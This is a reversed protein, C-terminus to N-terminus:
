RRGKGHRRPRDVQNSEGVSSVVVDSGSLSATTGNTGEPATGDPAPEAGETSEAPPAGESAAGKKNDKEQAPDGGGEPAAEASGEPAPEGTTDPATEATTEAPAQTSAEAEAAAAAAAEAAELRDNVYEGAPDSSPIRSELRAAATDEQAVAVEVTAASVLGAVLAAILLTDGLVAVLPRRSRLRGM